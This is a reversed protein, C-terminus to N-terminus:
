NLYKMKKKIITEGYENVGVPFEKVVYLKGTKPCVLPKDTDEEEGEFQDKPRIGGVDQKQSKIFDDYTDPGYIFEFDKKSRFKM